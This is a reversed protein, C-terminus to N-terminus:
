TIKLEQLYQIAEDCLKNWTGEMVCNFSYERMYLEDTIKILQKVRKMADSEEAYNDCDQVLNTDRLACNYSFACTNCDIM